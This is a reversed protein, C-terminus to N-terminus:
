LFILTAVMAEKLVHILDFTRTLDLSCSVLFYMYVRNSKAIVCKYTDLNNRSGSNTYKYVHLWMVLTM